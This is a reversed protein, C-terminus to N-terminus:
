RVLIFFHFDNYFMFINRTMRHYESNTPNKELLKTLIPKAESYKVKECLALTKRYDAEQSIITPADIEINVWDNEITVKPKYPGYTYYSELTNFIIINGGRWM